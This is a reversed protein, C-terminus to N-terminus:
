TWINLASGRAASTGIVGLTSAGVGWHRKGFPDSNHEECEVCISILSRTRATLIRLPVCTLTSFSAKTGDSELAPFWLPHASAHQPSFGALGRSYNVKSPREHGIEPGRSRCCFRGRRANSQEAFRSLPPALFSQTGRRILLTKGSGRVPRIAAPRSVTLGRKPPTRPARRTGCAAGRSRGFPQAWAAAAPRRRCALSSHYHERFTVPPGFVADRTRIPVRNEGGFQWM